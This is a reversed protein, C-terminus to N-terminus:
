ISIQLQETSRLGGFGNLFKPKPHLNPPRSGWKLLHQTELYSKTEAHKNVCFARQEPSWNPKISSIAGIEKMKIVGIFSPEWNKIVCTQVRTTHVSRKGAISFIWPRNKPGM